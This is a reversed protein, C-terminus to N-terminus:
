VTLTGFGTVSREGHINETWLECDVTRRGGEEAVRSVSGRVILPQGVPDPRRHACRVARVQGEAGAIMGLYRTLQALKFPGPVIPGPLGGRRAEDADYFFPVFNGTLDCYGRIQAPTPHLLSPPLEAGERLEAVAMPRPIDVGDVVPRASVTHEVPREGFVARREDPPAYRIFSRGTEAVLEGREDTFTSTTRLVLNHGFRSGYREHVAALRGVVSLREGVRVPRLLMWEDGTVLGLPVRPTEPLPLDAGFAMLVYPPAVAGQWRPDDDQMVDLVRAVLDRTVAAESPPGDQGIIAELEPTILSADSTM